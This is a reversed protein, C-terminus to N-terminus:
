QVALEVSVCDGLESTCRGFDDDTRCSAMCAEYGGWCDRYACCTTPDQCHVDFVYATQSCDLTECSAETKGVGDCGELEALFHRDCVTLQPGDTPPGYVCGILSVLGALWIM